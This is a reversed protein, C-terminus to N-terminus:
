TSLKASETPRYASPCDPPSAIFREASVVKATAVWETWTPLNTVIEASALVNVNGATTTPAEKMITFVAASPPASNVIDGLALSLNKTSIAPAAPVSLLSM